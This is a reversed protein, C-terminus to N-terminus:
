IPWGVLVLHLIRASMALLLLAWVFCCRVWFAANEQSLIAVRGSKYDLAMASYDVFDADPPIHILEQLVWRCPM